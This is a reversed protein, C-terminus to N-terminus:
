FKTSKIIHMVNLIKMMILKYDVKQLEPFQPKTISSRLGSWMSVKRSCPFSEAAMLKLRFLSTLPSLVVPPVIHNHLWGLKVPLQVQCPQDREKEERELM